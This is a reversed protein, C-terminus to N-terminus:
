APSIFKATGDWFPRRVPNALVMTVRNGGWTERRLATGRYRDGAAAPCL